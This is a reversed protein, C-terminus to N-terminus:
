PHSGAHPLSRWFAYAYWLIAPPTLPLRVWNGGDTPQFFCSNLPKLRCVRLGRAIHLFTAALRDRHISYLATSGPASRAAGGKSRAAVCFHICPPVPLSSAPLFYAAPPTTSAPILRRLPMYATSAHYRITPPTGAAADARHLLAARAHCAARPCRAADCHTLLLNNRRRSSAISPAPLLNLGSFIPLLLLCFPSLLLCARFTM